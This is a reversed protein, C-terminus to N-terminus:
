PGLLSRTASPIGAGGMLVVPVVNGISGSAKREESQARRLLAVVIGQGPIAWLEEIQGECGTAPFCPFSSRERNVPRSNLLVECPDSLTVIREESSERTKCCSEEVVYEHLSDRLSSSRM